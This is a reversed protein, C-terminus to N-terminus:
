NLRQQVSHVITGDPSKITESVNLKRPGTNRILQFLKRSNGAANALEMEKAKEVWWQEHDKRLSKTLKRKISKRQDNFATDSPISKRQQLLGVSTLSIWPKSIQMESAQCFNFASEMTNRLLQWGAKSDAFM